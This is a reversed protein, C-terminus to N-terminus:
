NTNKFTENLKCPVSNISAVCVVQHAIGYQLGLKHVNCTGDM